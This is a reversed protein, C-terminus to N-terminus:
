YNKEGKKILSTERCPTLSPYKISFISNYANFNINFCLRKSAETIRPAVFHFGSKIIEKSIRTATRSIKLSPSFLPNREITRSELIGFM